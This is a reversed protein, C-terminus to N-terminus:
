LNSPVNEGISDPTWLGEMVRDSLEFQLISQGKQNQIRLIRWARTM